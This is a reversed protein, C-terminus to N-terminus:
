RVIIIRRRSASKEFAGIDYAAGQPRTTGIIDDTFTGSLDDGANLLNSGAKLTVDGNASDTFMDGSDQGTLNGTGAYDDGTADTSACYNQTVTPLGAGQDEFVWDATGGDAGVCNKYNITSPV